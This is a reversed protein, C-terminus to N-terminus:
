VVAQPEGRVKLCLLTLDDFQEADQMHEQVALRLSDVLEAATWQASSRTALIASIRDHGFPVGEPSRADPLGDTFTLLVGHPGLACADAKFTAEAFLGICPGGISLQQQHQGELVLPQEHGAVVYHLRQQAAVYAGVFVTAFMATQGHTEAMYRNVTSIARCITSGPDGISQKAAQILCLRLLSRFVSMYLASPIGKDCVDAIVVFTVGNSEMADYWDAGILYAPQFIAALELTASSPLDKILFDAQIRRAEKLQTDTIAHQKANALFAKLQEAAQNVYSFLRGVDSDDCPLPQGFEGRSIRSLAAGAQDIPRSLASCIRHIALSSVCLAVLNGIWILIFLGNVTSYASSKSLVMLVNRGPHSRDIGVFYDQGKITVQNFATRAKNSLALRILPYWASRHNANPNLLLKEERQTTNGQGFVVTSGQDLVMLLAYGSTKGADLDLVPLPTGDDSAAKILANIGTREGLLDITLCSTIAAVVGKTPSSPDYAPVSSALCPASVDPPGMAASSAVGQLARAMTSSGDRLLAESRIRQLPDLLNGRVQMTNGNPWTIAFSFQPFLASLRRIFQIDDDHQATKFAAVNAMVSLTRLHHQDWMTMWASAQEADWIMQLRLRQRVVGQAHQLATFSAVLLIPVLSLWVGLALKQSLPLGTWLKRTLVPWRLAM